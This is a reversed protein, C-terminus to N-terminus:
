STSTQGKLTEWYASFEQQFAARIKGQKNTLWATYHHTSSLYILRRNTSYIKNLTKHMENEFTDIQDLFSFLGPSSIHIKLGRNESSYNLNKM